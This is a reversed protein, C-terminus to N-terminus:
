RDAEGLWWTINPLSVLGVRRYANCEEEDHCLALGLGTGIYLFLLISRDEVGVPKDVSLLPWHYPAPYAQHSSTGQLYWQGHSGRIAVCDVCKGEVCITANKVWGYPNEGLVETSAGLVKFCDDKEFSLNLMRGYSISNNRSISVSAWSWSPADLKLSSEPLWVREKRSTEWLLNESLSNEWHGALYAGMSNNSFRAALGSLAPLRDSEFTLDLKSFESVLDMWIYSLRDMSVDQTDVCAFLSKLWMDSTMFEPPRIFHQPNELEVRKLWPDDMDGCECRMGTKCKWVLEEAHFHLTRCPLLREQFAWARSMLPADEIHNAANELEIFRAHALHLLPRLRLSRGSYKLFSSGTPLRIIEGGAKRISSWRNSFLGKDSGECATAAITFLSNSYIEAMKGSQTEWDSPQDQIICLSDIWLYQIKLAWCIRITDQFTKPLADWSIGALYLPLSATISRIPVGSSGWCYSLAVYPAHVGQPEVLKIKSEKEVGLDLVRKPLEPSLPVKCRPHYADCSTNWKKLIAVVTPIDLQTPVDAHVRHSPTNESDVSAGLIAERSGM